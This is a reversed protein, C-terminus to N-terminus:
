KIITFLFVTKTFTVLVCICVCLCMQANVCAYVRVCDKKREILEMLARRPSILLDYISISNFYFTLTVM